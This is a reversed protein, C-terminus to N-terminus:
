SDSIKLGKGNVDVRIKTGAAPNKELLHDALPERGFLNPRQYGFDAQLRSRIGAM